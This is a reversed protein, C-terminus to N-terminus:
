IGRGIVCFWCISGIGEAKNIFFFTSLLSLAEANSSDATGARKTRRRIILVLSHRRSQLWVEMRIDWCCRLWCWGPAITLVVMVILMMGIAVSLWRLRWSVAVGDFDLWYFHGWWGCDCGGCRLIWCRVSYFSKWAARLLTVFVNSGGAAVEYCCILIRVFLRRRRIKYAVIFWYISPVLIAMKFHFSRRYWIGIVLIFDDITLWPDHSSLSYIYRDLCPM